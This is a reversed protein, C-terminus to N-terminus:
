RKRVKVSLRFTVDMEGHKEIGSLEYDDDDAAFYVYLWDIIDSAIQKLKNGWHDDSMIAVEM